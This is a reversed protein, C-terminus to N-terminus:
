DSLLIGMLIAFIGCMVLSLLVIAGIVNEQRDNYISAAIDSYGAKEYEKEIQDKLSHKYGISNKFQNPHSYFSSPTCGCDECDGCKVKTVIKNFSKISTRPSLKDRVKKNDKLSDIDFCELDMLYAEVKKDSAKTDVYMKVYEQCLAYNLEAKEAIISDTKKVALTKLSDKQQANPWRHEKSFDYWAYQNEDGPGDFWYLSLPTIFNLSAILLVSLISIPVYMSVEYDNLTYMRYTIVIGAAPLLIIGVVILYLITSFFELITVGSVFLVACFLIFLVAVNTKTLM